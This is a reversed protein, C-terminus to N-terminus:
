ILFSCLAINKRKITLFFICNSLTFKERSFKYMLNWAWFFYLVCLLSYVFFRLFFGIHIRLRSWHKIKHQKWSSTIGSDPIWGTGLKLLDPPRQLTKPTLDIEWIDTRVTVALDRYYHKGVLILLNATSCFSNQSYPDCFKCLHRASFHGKIAKLALYLIWKKWSVSFVFNM